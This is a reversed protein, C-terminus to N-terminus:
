ALLCPNPLYEVSSNLTITGPPPREGTQWPYRREQALHQKAGGVKLCWCGLEDITLSNLSLKLLLFCNRKKENMTKGMVVHIM